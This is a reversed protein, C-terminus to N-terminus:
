ILKNILNDKNLKSYGIINRQKCLEKLEKMTKTELEDKSFTKLVIQEAIVPPIMHEIVQEAFSVITEKPPETKLELIPEEDDSDSDYPKKGNKRRIKAKRKREEQEQKRREEQQKKKNSILTFIQILDDIDESHNLWDFKINVENM